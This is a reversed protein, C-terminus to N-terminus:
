SNVVTHSQVFSLEEAPLPFTVDGFPSLAGPVSAAFESVAHQHGGEDDIPWGNDIYQKKGHKNQAVVTM